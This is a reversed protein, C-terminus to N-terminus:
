KAELYFQGAVSGDFIGPNASGQEKYGGSVAGVAATAGSGLFNGGLLLTTDATRGDETLAGSMTVSMAGTQTAPVNVGNFTMAPNDTRLITGPIAADVTLTGDIDRTEGDKLSGRFNSVTGTFPNAQQGDTWDVDLDIDAEVQGVVATADSVDARLAGSYSGQLTTPMDSTPVIGSVRDFNQQFTGGGGGGGAGGGGGGGSGGSGSGLCGALATTALLAAGLRSLQSIQM